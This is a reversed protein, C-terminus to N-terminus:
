VGEEDTLDSVQLDHIHLEPSHFHASQEPDSPDLGCAREAELVAEMRAADEIIQPDRALSEDLWALAAKVMTQARPSSALTYYVWRGDKSGEILRAQRLISLHKSTTSPALDLFATLQCVCLRRGRLVMLMRVRNEDSLARCLTLFDFM